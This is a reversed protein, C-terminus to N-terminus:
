SRILSALARGVETPRAVRACSGGGRRALRLADSPADNPCVVHLQDFRTALDLPDPGSTAVCDSLVVGIRQSASSADLQKLGATLGLSVNTTGYGRLALIDDVVDELRREQRQQKIVIADGAFAVVSYDHPSRIALVAAGLAAAVLRDGDMSGSHDILLTLAHNRSGWTRSRLLDADVATAGRRADVVAHLSADLDIDGGRDLRGLRMERTGSRRDHDGRALEAAIQAALRHAMKSLRGPTLQAIRSLLRM